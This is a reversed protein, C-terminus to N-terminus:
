LGRGRRLGRLVWLEALRDRAGRSWEAMPSETRNSAVDRVRCVARYECFRCDDEHDTPYFRGAAVVDLLANVIGRARRLEREEYQVRQNEGRYTPFHYEARAVADDLIRRAAAAYLAHQLRRGGHFVGEDRGYGSPSGTKYDIVVLRDDTERDIRDIAGTARVTGGPLEIEVVPQAGGGGFRLELRDWPAGHRRIMRTFLGVEDRLRERELEFVAEGPPALRERLREIEAELAAGVTAEFDPSDFAQGRARAAELARRYVAHLLRGRELPGLWRDPALDAEEPPVIGLVYRLMYRHPCTGLTELRKASVAMEPRGRPDLDPRPRLRGHWPTFESGARAAQALLGRDLGAFAQRVVPTGSVLVGDREILSFWVDADDVRGTGRPVACAFAGAAKRLADYDAAADRTMLRLAQLMEPAPAMTRAETADWAAYSLTVSGRLRALLSALALKREALRDATTPVPAFADRAAIRRRDEDNLLTDHTTAGPFRVADLGVVFTAPRGTWGGHDIDSLHIRGGSATWPAAGEAAPAPVRTDLKGAILAIAGEITTPRQATQRLRELRRRLRELATRDAGGGNGDTPDLPVLDLCALLGNALVAPAVLPQERGPGPELAPVSDLLPELVKRLDDLVVRDRQLSAEIEAQTRDDGPQWERSDLTREARTLASRYRALSRGIMMRRMRRALAPGSTRADPPAIDGRDLLERLVPEPFDDRVWRLWAEVARGPRTRGVPLGASYSAGIGLRRAQIDLAAGYTMPDTAIIEVQDWRLDAAMVRRLVERIEDSVSGAAFISLPGPQVDAPLADVDHLWTLAGDARTPGLLVASPIKLGEVADDDLISAGREILLRLLRGTLGRESQGSVLVWLTGAPDITGAELGSVAQRLIGASDTRGRNFLMREYADLVRGLAERKRRDRFGARGLRAADVGAHRLARISNSMADRLGVGEVFPRLLAAREAMAQEIAADILALEDFEDVLRIGREALVPVSLSAAVDHPTAVEFGVWGGRALSLRRLLERGVGRRPAIIVKRGVPEDDAVRALARLVPPGTVSGDMRMAEFM